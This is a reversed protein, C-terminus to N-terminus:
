HKELKYLLDLGNAFNSSTTQLSFNKNLLYNIELISIQDLLGLSYSINLKPSLNKGVILSTNQQLSNTTPDFIPKAGITLQDLGIKQQIKSILQGINNKEGGLNTAANLLLQTSATNLQNSAQGTILYSLMDLQSKIINSPNAFLIIHPNQLSGRVHLNINVPMPMSQSSFISSQIFNNSGLKSKAENSPDCTSEPLILITRNATINITPNDIPTNAFNLSSNSKLKLSQGYYSFEGPFLKLQGTVLIPHDPDQKITLSGKLKTTLGRYQLQVNDGAEIKINNKLTFPVVTFAKKKDKVFEIDPSLEILNHNKPNIKAKPFLIYGSTEIQHINTQIKLKPTATIQYESNHIITVDKGHIDISTSLNYKLLDTTTHFELSGKGSNLQGIGLLTNKDTHLQYKINKLNLGLAPIYTNAHQLNVSLHILPKKLSGSIKLQANFIGKNNKLYPFLQTLFNLDKLNLDISADISQKSKLWSRAQYNPLLLYAFLQNKNKKFTQVSAELGYKSVYSNIKTNPIILHTFQEQGIKNLKFESLIGQLSFPLLSGSLKLQLPSLKFIKNNFQTTALDFIWKKRKTDITLAAQIQKFQWEKWQLNTKDFIINFKPHQFIGNITGRLAIKGQLNPISKTLQKISLQWNIHWQEQISGQLELQLNDSQISMQHIVVSNLKLFHFIKPTQFPKQPYNKPRKQKIVLNLKDIVISRLNLRGQFFDRWDWDFQAESVYLYIKNNQYYLEKLQIPGLLRGHISNIKLQGPLFQKGILVVAELGTKTNLVLYSGILFISILLSRLPWRGLFLKKDNIM